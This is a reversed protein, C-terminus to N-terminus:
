FRFGISANLGTADFGRDAGIWRYGVQGFLGSPSELGAFLGVGFRENDEDINGIQYDLLYVGAQAGVYGRWTNPKDKFYIRTFVGLGYTSFENGNSDITTGDFFIGTRFSQGGHSSGFVDYSLGFNFHTDETLGRLNGDDPLHVGLTVRFPKEVKEASALAMSGVGLTM